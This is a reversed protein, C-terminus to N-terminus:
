LKYLNKKNYATRIKRNQHFMITTKILLHFDGSQQKKQNYAFSIILQIKQGFM